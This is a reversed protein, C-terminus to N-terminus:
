FDAILLPGAYVELDSVFHQGNITEDLVVTYIGVNAKPASTGDITFVFFCPNYPHLILSFSSSPPHTTVNDTEYQPIGSVTEGSGLTTTVVTTSGNGFVIKQNPYSVNLWSPLPVVSGNELVGAVTVSVALSSPSGSPPDYLLGVIGPSGYEASALSIPALGTVVTADPSQEVSLVADGTLGDAGSGGIFLTNNYHNTTQGVGVMYVTANTGELGVDPLYSPVIKLWGGKFLSLSTLNVATTAPAYVTIPIEEWGLGESGGGNSRNESVTVDQVQPVGLKITIGTNYAASDTLLFSVSDNFEPGPVSFLFVFTGDQRATVNGSYTQYNGTENVFLQVGTVLDSPSPVSSANTVTSFYGQFTTINTAKMSFGVLDSEAAHVTFYDTFVTATTRNSQAPVTTMNFSQPTGADYTSSTCITGFEPVATGCREHSVTVPTAGTFPNKWSVAATSSTASGSNSTPTSSTLAVFAVTGIAIVIVVVVVIFVTGIARRRPM